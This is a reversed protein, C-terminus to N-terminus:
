EEPVVGRVVAAARDIQERDLTVLPSELAAAIAVYCAAAGRLRREAALRAARMGLEHDIAVLRLNPISLLRDVVARGLDPRGSQRAIAGGVEALLLVPAVIAEGEGIARSLWQRAAVHHADTRVLYSVWVSADVVIM